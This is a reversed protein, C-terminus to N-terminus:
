FAPKNKEKKKKKKKGNILQNENQFYPGAVIYDNGVKVFFTM